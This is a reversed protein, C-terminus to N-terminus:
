FFKGSNDKNLNKQFSYKKKKYVHKKREEEIIVRTKGEIKRIIFISSILKTASHQLIIEQNYRIPLPDPNNLYSLSISRYISLFLTM